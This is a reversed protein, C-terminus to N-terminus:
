LFSCTKCSYKVGSRVFVYVFTKSNHKEDLFSFCAPLVYGCNSSRVGGSWSLMLFFPIDCAFMWGKQFDLWEIYQVVVLGSWLYSFPKNISNLINHLVLLTNLLELTKYRFSAIKECCFPVCRRIRYYHIYYDYHDILCFSFIIWCLFINRLRYHVWLKIEKKKRLRM